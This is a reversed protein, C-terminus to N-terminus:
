LQILENLNTVINNYENDVLFTETVMGTGSDETVMPITIRCVAYSDMVKLASVTFGNINFATRPRGDIFLRRMGSATIVATLSDIKQKLDLYTDGAAILTISFENATAPTLQFGETQYATFSGRKAKPRRIINNLREIFMGLDELKVGDIHPREQEVGVPVETALTVVPEQLEMTFQIWGQQLYESDVGEKFYVQYTGWPTTFTALDTLQRLLMYFDALQEYALAKSEAVLFGSFRLARGGHRIESARVYPEFGEEGTWDHYTKGIRSPVDLHGGLAINSGTVRSPVIGYNSLPINNIAYSM